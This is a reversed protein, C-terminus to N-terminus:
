HFHGPLRSSMDRSYSQCSWLLQYLLINWILLPYQLSASTLLPSLSIQFLLHIYRLLRVKPLSVSLEWFPDFTLSTNKCNDCKLSSCLQGVFVDFLDSAELM